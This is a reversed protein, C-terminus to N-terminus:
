NNRRSKQNNKGVYKIGLLFILMVSSIIITNELINILSKNGNLGNKLEIAKDQIGLVKEKNVLNDDSSEAAKATKVVIKKIKPLPNSVIKLDDQYRPLVQWIDKSRAVIGILEVIMGKKMKPKDIKAFSKIYCKVVGTGDDIYFTNGSTKTIIGKIKILMGEYKEGINGTPVDSIKTEEHSIIKIQSQDKIKIRAGSNPLSLEGTVEILDGVQLNPFDKKNCYIQIGSDEDQIYFYQASFINPLVNVTGSVILETGEKQQKADRISYKQLSLQNSTTKTQNADASSPEIQTVINELNPTITSSWSWGSDTKNYSQGAKASQYVIKNQELGNPSILRVEDGDDNLSIKSVSHYISLYSKAKIVQQDLVYPKSGGSEIDDLQWGYLNIDQDSYNYLEIFENLVGNEPHPNIENLYINDSLQFFEIILNTTSVLEKIDKVILKINRVGPGVFKDIYYVFTYISDNAIDDGNLGNDYLQQSASGNISSLDAFVENIDSDGDPDTAEAVIKLIQSDAVLFIKNNMTKNIIIPKGSNRPKAFELSSPDLNMSDNNTTWSGVDTGDGSEDIRIMSSKTTNDGALPLEGNGAIDIAMRGDNWKGDYIKIQLKENSLTLDSDILDPDLNLISEGKSFIYDKASNTILFYGERPIIGEPITMMLEETDQSNLKTIQWGTLNINENSVNKLVMFEDSTSIFSGTWFIEDIIVGNNEAEVPKPFCFFGGLVIFFIIIFKKM